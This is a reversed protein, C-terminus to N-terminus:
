NRCKRCAVLDNEKLNKGALESAKLYNLWDPSLGSYQNKLKRAEPIAKLTDNLGSIFLIAVFVPYIFRFRRVGNKSLLYYLCALISMLIFPYVPIILREQNWFVQLIIFTVALFAGAILITAFLYKNRKFSFCLGAVAGVYVLLMRFVSNEGIQYQFGMIRFLGNSLYQNSNQWFRVLFGAFDEKGEEMRYPNKNLLASGQGSFQLESNGWIWDKLLSYVVFLAAYCVLFLGLKRWQRYFLFYGATGIAISFGVTRTLAVSLASLALCLLVKIEKDWGVPEPEEKKIFRFFVLIFLSLMFMFFAEAYTQSAYYLVYSNVSILALVPLLISAPIKRRFAKFTFYMFGLMSLLSFMKLPFLSLGFIYAVPSLAIKYLMAQAGPFHFDKLFRNAALIYDSDDGTLSVRPDYLLLSVLATLVFIVRFYIRDNKQLHNEMKDLLSVPIATKKSKVTTTQKKM